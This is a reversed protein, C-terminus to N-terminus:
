VEILAYTNELDTRQYKKPNMINKKSLALNKEEECRGSRIQPEGM